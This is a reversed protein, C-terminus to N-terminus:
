NQYAVKEFLSTKIKTHPYYHKLIERYDKGQLALYHAGWQCLGVGHGFGKGTFIFESGKKEVDFWTSKLRFYGIQKRFEQGSYIKHSGTAKVLIKHARGTPTRALIQIQQIKAPLRLWHTLQAARWKQSWNLNPSVKFHSPVSFSPQQFPKNWVFQAAETQGGSDAHFFARYIENDRYILFEGRTERLIQEVKKQWRRSSLSPPYWSFVQDEVTSEVDFNWNKRYRMVSLIYSRSAVAQAKIAEEPWVIPMERPLVGALYSELDLHAIINTQSGYGILRIKTPLPQRHNIQLFDGTLDVINNKIYAVKHTVLDTWKWQWLKNVYVRQWHWKQIQLSFSRSLFDNLQSSNLNLGQLTFAKESRFVRVRVVVDQSNNQANLNFTLFLVLLAGM